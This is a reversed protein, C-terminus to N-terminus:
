LLKTEYKLSEFIVAGKIIEKLYKLFFLPHIIM